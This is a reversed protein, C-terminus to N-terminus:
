FFFAFFLTEISFGRRGKRSLDRSKSLSILQVRGKTLAQASSTMNTSSIVFVSFEAVNKGSHLSAMRAWAGHCSDLWSVASQKVDVNRTLIHTICGPQGERAISSRWMRCVSSWSLMREDRVEVSEVGWM